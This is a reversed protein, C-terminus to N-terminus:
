GAQREWDASASLGIYQPDPAEPRGLKTRRFGETGVTGRPIRLFWHVRPVPGVAAPGATPALVVVNRLAWSDPVRPGAPGRPRVEQHRRLNAIWGGNRVSADVPVVTVPRRIPTGSVGHKRSVARFPRSLSRRFFVHMPLCAGQRALLLLRCPIEFRKDTQVSGEM